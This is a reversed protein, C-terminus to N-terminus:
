QENKCVLSYYDKVDSHPKKYGFSIFFDMLKKFDFYNFQLLEYSKGEKTFIIITNWTIRGLSKSSPYISSIDKKTLAYKRLLALNRIMIQEESIKIWLSETLLGKVMQYAGLSFFWIMFLTYFIFAADEALSTWEKEIILSVMLIVVGGSFVLFAMRLIPVIFNFKFIYEKM